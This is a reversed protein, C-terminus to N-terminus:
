AAAIVRKLALVYDDIDPEKGSQQADWLVEALCELMQHEAAHVDNFRHTLQQHIKM